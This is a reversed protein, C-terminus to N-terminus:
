GISSVWAPQRKVSGHKRAEKEAGWLTARPDPEEEVGEEGRKSKRAETKPDFLPYHGRWGVARGKQDMFELTWMRTTFGDPPQYKSWPSEQNRNEVSGFFGALQPQGGSARYQDFSSDYDANWEFRSAYWPDRIGIREGILLKRSNAPLHIWGIIQTWLIGGLASYEDEHPFPNYQLLTGGVEIMNPTAHIYYIYGEHEGNDGTAFSHAVTIDTTTSVYVTEKRGTSADLVYANAHNWIGYAGPSSPYVVSRPLIGGKARIQDPTNTDGRFVYAPHPQSGDDVPPQRSPDSAAALPTARGSGLLAVLCAASSLARIAWESRVM